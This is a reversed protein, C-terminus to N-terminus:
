RGDRRSRQEADPRTQERTSSMAPTAPSRRALQVALRPQRDLLEAPLEPLGVDPIRDGASNPARGNMQPVSYEDTRASRIEVGIASPMAM